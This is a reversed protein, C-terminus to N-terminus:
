IKKRQITEVIGGLQGYVDDDPIERYWDTKRSRDITKGMLSTMTYPFIILSPIKIMYALFGLGYSGSIFYDLQLMTSLQVTFEKSAVNYIDINNITSFEDVVRRLLADKQGPHIIGLLHVNIKRDLSKGIESILYGVDFIISFDYDYISDFINIGINLPKLKNEGGTSFVPETNMEKKTKNFDDIHIHLTPHYVTKQVPFISDIHKTKLHEMMDINITQNNYLNLDIIAPFNAMSVYDEYIPIPGLCAIRPFSKVISEVLVFKQNRRDYATQIGIIDLDTAVLKRYLLIFNSFDDKILCTLMRKQNEM